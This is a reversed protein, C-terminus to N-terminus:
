LPGAPSVDRSLSGLLVVDELVQAAARVFSVLWLRPLHRRHTPASTAAVYSGAGLGPPGRSTSCRVHLMSRGFLTNEPVSRDVPSIARKVVFDFFGCTM